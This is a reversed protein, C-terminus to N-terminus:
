GLLMRIFRIAYKPMEDKTYSSNYPGPNYGHKFGSKGTFTVKGPIVSKTSWSYEEELAQPYPILMEYFYSCRKWQLLPNPNDDIDMSM